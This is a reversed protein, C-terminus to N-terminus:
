RGKLCQNNSSTFILTKESTCSQLFSLEVEFNLLILYDHGIICGFRPLSPNMGRSKDTFPTHRFFINRTEIIKKEAVQNKTILFRIKM